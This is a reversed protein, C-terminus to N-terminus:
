VHARGIELTFGRKLEVVILEGNRLATMDCSKVEGKVEYGLSELYDRVPAYLDQELLVM